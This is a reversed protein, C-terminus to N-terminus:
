DQIVQTKNYPLLSSFCYRLGLGPDTLGPWIYADEIEKTRMFNAQPLQITLFM